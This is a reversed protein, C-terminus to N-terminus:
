MYLDIFCVRSFDILISTQSVLEFVQKGHKM